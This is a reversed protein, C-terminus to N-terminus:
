RWSGQKGNLYNELPGKHIRYRYPKGPEKTVIGRALFTKMTLNVTQRSVGIAEGFWAQTPTVNIADGPKGRFLEMLVRALRVPASSFLHDDLAVGREHYQKVVGSVFMRRLVPHDDLLQHFTTLAFALLRTQTTAVATHEHVPLDNLAEADLWCHRNGIEHIGVRGDTFSALVEIQGDLIFFIDSVPSGKEFLREGGRLQVLKRGPGKALGFDTIWSQEEETLKRIM